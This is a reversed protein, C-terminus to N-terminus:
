VKPIILFYFKMPVVNILEKLEKTMKVRLRRGVFQLIFFFIYVAIIIIQIQVVTERHRM